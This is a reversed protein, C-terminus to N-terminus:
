LKIEIKFAEAIKKADKLPITIGVYPDCPVGDNQLGYIVLTADKDHGWISIRVDATQNTTLVNQNRLIETEM